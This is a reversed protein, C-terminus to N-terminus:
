RTKLIELVEKCKWAIDGMAKARTEISSSDLSAWTHIIRLAMQTQEYHWELCDCAPHHTTCKLVRTPVKM